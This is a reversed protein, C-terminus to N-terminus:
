IAKLVFFAYGCIDGYRGLIGMELDTEDLVSRMVSDETSRFSEMKRKLPNYYNEWWGRSPLRHTGLVNFGSKRAHEINQEESGMGPYAAAWYERAPGPIDDTFWCMESIVALGGEPLLPRWRQLARAFGLNYAAGESWLLDISAVPWDLAGMDAELTMILHDLGRHKAKMRLQELFPAALDVALVPCRLYDALLLAGAGAGCGLDAIRPNPPLVPLTALIERSFSEDGPGQRDLGRYLEILAAFYKEPNTM